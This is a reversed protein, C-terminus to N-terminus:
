QAARSRGAASRCAARGREFVLKRNRARLDLAREQQRTQEGRTRGDNGLRHNRAVVGFAHEIREAHRDLDGSRDDAQMWRAIRLRNGAKSMSSGPSMEAAANRSTAACCRRRFALDRRAVGPEIGRARPDQVHNPQQASLDPDRRVAVRQLLRVALHSALKASSVAAVTPPSSTSCPSRRFEPPKRARRARAPSSALKEIELLQADFLAIPDGVMAPTKRANPTPTSSCGAPSRTSPRGSPAAQFRRM